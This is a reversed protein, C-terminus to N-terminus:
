DEKRLKRPQMPQDMGTNASPDPAVMQALKSSIMLRKLELEELDAILSEYEKQVKLFPIQEEYFVQVEKQRAAMEEKTPMTQESNEVQNMILSKFNYVFITFFNLSGLTLNIAFLFVRLKRRALGWLDIL